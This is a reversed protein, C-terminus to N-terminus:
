RLEVHDKPVPPGKPRDLFQWIALFAVILLIWLLLARSFMSKQPRPTVRTKFLERIRPLEEARFARKPIIQFVNSAPYLLFSTKGEVTRHVTDWAARTESSPTVIRYGADDFEWTINREQETRNELARNAARRFGLVLVPIAVAAGLLPVWLPQASPGRGKLANSVTWLAFWAAVFFLVRLQLARAGENLGRRVDAVDLVFHGRIVGPRSDDSPKGSDSDM